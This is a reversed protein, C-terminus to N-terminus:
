ESEEEDAQSWHAGCYICRFHYRLALAGVNAGGWTQEAGCLPCTVIEETDDM